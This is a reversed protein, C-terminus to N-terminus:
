ALEDQKEFSEVRGFQGNTWRGARDNLLPFTRLAADAFRVPSAM